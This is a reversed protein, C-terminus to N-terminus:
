RIEYFLFIVCQLKKHRMVIAIANVYTPVRARYDAKEECM